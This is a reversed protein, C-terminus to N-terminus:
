NESAAAAAVPMPYRAIFRALAEAVARPQMMQMLHTARFIVIQYANEFWTLLLEHSSQMFPDSDDGVMCLVPAGIQRANEARFNWATLAPLEIQFFTDVDILALDLAHSGLTKKVSARYGPGNAASLFADLAGAKNGSQYIEVVANLKASAETAGASALIPPELLMLTQVVEPSRLALQLAIAAGYSHGVIHARGIGLHQLLGYADDAQQSISVAGGNCRPNGAFGRRHYSILQYHRLPPQTLLPAFGDAFISGHILLVPEGSGQIVYEFRSGNIEARLM